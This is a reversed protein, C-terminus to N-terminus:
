PNMTLKFWTLWLGGQLYLGSVPCVMRLFIVGETDGKSVKISPDM